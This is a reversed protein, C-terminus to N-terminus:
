EKQGEIVSPDILGAQQLMKYRKAANVRKLTKSAAYAVVTPSSVGQRHFNSPIIAYAAAGSPVCTTVDILIGSIPCHFPIVISDIHCKLAKALKHTRLAAFVQYNRIGKLFELSEGNLLEEREKDTLRLNSALKNRRIRETPISGGYLAEEPCLARDVLQRIKGLALEKAEDPILRYQSEKAMHMLEGSAVLVNEKIYPSTGRSIRMLGPGNPSSNSSESYDLEVGTYPCTDPLDGFDQPKLDFYIGEAKARRKAFDILRLLKTRKQENTNVM